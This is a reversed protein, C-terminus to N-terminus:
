GLCFHGIEYAAGEGAGSCVGAQIRQVRQTRPHHHPWNCMAEKGLCAQEHARLTRACQVSPQRYVKSRAHGAAADEVGGVFRGLGRQGLDDGTTGQVVECGGGDCAEGREADVSWHLDHLLRPREGQKGAEKGNKGM